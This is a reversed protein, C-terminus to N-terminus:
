KVTYGRGELCASIARRYAHAQQASYASQQDYRQQVREAQEQRANDSAAGIMAGAVAGVLTGGPGSHPGSIVSGIVAGTVAGVATDVGPPPMAVVRVRQADDRVRSPDYQTQKVAWDNCEYRDRDLRAESQGNSPYVYVDTQPVSVEPPSTVVRERPPPVVCASLSFALLLTPWRWASPLPMNLGVARNLLTPAAPLMSKKLRM